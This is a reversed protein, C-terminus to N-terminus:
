GMPVIAASAADILGLLPAPYIGLWVVVLLGAGMTATLLLSPRPLPVVPPHEHVGHAHADAHGQVPEYGAEDHGPNPAPEIYMQRLVQLYYYLSILSSFIAVGALWLFGGDAVAAFLYFKATFGAFIPL